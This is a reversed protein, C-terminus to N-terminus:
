AKFRRVACLVVVPYGSQSSESAPCSNERWVFLHDFDRVDEEMGLVLVYPEDVIDREEAELLFDVKRIEYSRDAKGVLLRFNPVPPYAGNNTPSLKKFCAPYETLETDV